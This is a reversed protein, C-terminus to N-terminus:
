PAVITNVAYIYHSGTVQSIVQYLKSVSHTVYM